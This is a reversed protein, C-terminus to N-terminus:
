EYQKITLLKNRRITSYYEETHMCLQQTVQTMDSEKYAISWLRAPEETWAIRWALISRHTAMGEELSRGLALPQVWTRCQCAPNKGSAGGPFGM